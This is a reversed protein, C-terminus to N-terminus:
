RNLSFAFVVEEGQDGWISEAADEANMGVSGNTLDEFAMAERLSVFGAEPESGQMRSEYSNEVAKRINSSLTKLADPHPMEANIRVSFRDRIADPLADLFGNMTAYVKYGDAPTIVEGNPLTMKMVDHDDCLSYLATMVSGSAKDVENLVLPVGERLARLAPGDHWVFEDGKPVFHGILEQASMEPHLTVPYAKVASDVAVTTKGTGPPGYLLVRDVGRKASEFKEWWDNSM